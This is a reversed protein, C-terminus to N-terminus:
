EDRIAEPLQLQLPYWSMWSLRTTGLPPQMRAEFCISPAHL